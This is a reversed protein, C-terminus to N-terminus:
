VSLHSKAKGTIPDAMGAFPDNLRNAYTNALQKLAALQKSHSSPGSAEAGPKIPRNQYSGNAQM